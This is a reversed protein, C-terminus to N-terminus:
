QVGRAKVWRWVGAVLGVVLLAFSGGVLVWKCMTLVAALMDVVPTPSPYRIMVASTSINEMYDLLAGWVPALNARQWLSGPAFARGYVWSIGTSLFVTYVLPWILDFTFRARVYAVRGQVGYAEAMRYLDDATYYFSTDPSGAAGTDARARSAQGPLVLATFLFFIVLTLLAVWGTSVHRIWDSLKNWM